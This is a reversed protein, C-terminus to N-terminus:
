TEVEGNWRCNSLQENLVAPIWSKQVLTEWTQACTATLHLHVGYSINCRMVCACMCMRTRQLQQILQVVFYLQGGLYLDYKVEYRWMGDDRQASPLTWDISGFTLICVSHIYQIYPASHAHTQEIISDHLQLVAPYRQDAAKFMVISLSIGVCTEHQTHRYLVLMHFSLNMSLSSIDEYLLSCQAITCMSM